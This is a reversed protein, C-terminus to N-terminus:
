LEEKYYYEKLIMDYFSDMDSFGLRAAYNELNDPLELGLCQSFYWDALQLLEIDSIEISNPIKKESLTTKKNLAREQLSNLEGTQALYNLLRQDSEAQSLQALISQNNMQQWDHSLQKDICDTSQHLSTLEDVKCFDNDHGSSFISNLAQDIVEFYRPGQLRIEDLAIHEIRHSQDIENIACQWQSTHVFASQSTQDNTNQNHDKIQTLLTIADAKKQDVKNDNIWQSIHAM